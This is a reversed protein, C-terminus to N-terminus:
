RLVQFRQWSQFKTMDWTRIVRPFGRRKKVERRADNILSKASKHQQKMVCKKEIKIDSKFYLKLFM